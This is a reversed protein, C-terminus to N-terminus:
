KLDGVREVDQDCSNSRGLENSGNVPEAWERAKEVANLERILADVSRTLENLFTVQHRAGRYSEAMLIADILIPVVLSEPDDVEELARLKALAKRRAAVPDTLAETRGICWAM